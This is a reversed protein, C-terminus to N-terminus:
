FHRSKVDNGANSNCKFFSKFGLDVLSGKIQLLQAQFAKKFMTSVYNLQPPNFINSFPTSGHPSSQHPPPLPSLWRFELGFGGRGGGGPVRPTNLACKSGLM